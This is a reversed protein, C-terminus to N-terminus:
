LQVMTGVCQHTIFHVSSNRSPLLFTDCCTYKFSLFVDHILCLTVNEMCWLCCYSLEFNM